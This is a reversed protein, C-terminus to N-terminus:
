KDGIVKWGGGSGGDSGYKSKIVDLNNGIVAGCVRGPGGGSGRGGPTVWKNSSKAGIILLSLGGGFRGGVFGTSLITGFIAM